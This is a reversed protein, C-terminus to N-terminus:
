LLAAYGWRVAAGPTFCGAFGGFAAALSLMPERVDNLYKMAIEEGKARM